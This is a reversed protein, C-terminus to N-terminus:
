FGRRFGKGIIESTNSILMFAGPECEHVFNRLRIAQARTMATMVVTKEQHTYAGEAKYITASRKLEQTIFNCIPEPKTCIINFYKCMNISEIVNDIVLSKAILGLISFLGTRVGFLFTGAVTIFIDSWLLASGINISTYKRMIMAVIDTGGSSAGINFLIASGVAPLFVAFVLELMPEDTLPGSLPFVVEMISLGFSLVASSFVTKMGFNRGFFVFGMLLLFMNIVFTITAPTINFLKSIIVAMGTVGGFSFNNPFKFFYVGVALILTSVAIIFYEAVIKKWGSLQSLSIKM